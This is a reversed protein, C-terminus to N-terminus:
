LNENKRKKKKDSKLRVSLKANGDLQLTDDLFQM